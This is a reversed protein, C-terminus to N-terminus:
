FSHSPKSGPRVTEIQRVRMRNVMTENGALDKFVYYGQENLKPKTKARVVDGNAMTLDYRACGALLVCCVVAAVAPGLIHNFQMNLKFSKSFSDTRKAPNSGAPVVAEKTDVRGGLEENM